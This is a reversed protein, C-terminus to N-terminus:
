VQYDLGLHKLIEPDQSYRLINDESHLKIVIKLIAILALDATNNVLRSKANAQFTKENVESKPLKWLVLFADGINKNPIGLYQITIGHVIKAIDNVFLM